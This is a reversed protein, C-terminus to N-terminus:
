AGVAGPVVSIARLADLARREVNQATVYETAQWRTVLNVKNGVRANGAVEGILPVEFWRVLKPITDELFQTDADLAIIVEGRAQQLARNLAKAKGGNPM